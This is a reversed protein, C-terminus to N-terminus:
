LEILIGKNKISIIPTKCNECIKNTKLIGGKQPLPYTNKCDPYGTCGVFRKKNKSVILRLNKECKPWVGYINQEENLLDDIINEIGSM